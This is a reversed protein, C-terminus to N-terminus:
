RGKRKARAMDFDFDDDPDPIKENDEFTINEVLEAQRPPQKKNRDTKSPASYNQKASSLRQAINAFLARFRHRRGVIFGLSCLAVMGYVAIIMNHKTIYNQPCPLKVPPYYVGGECTNGVVKRYGSTGNYFGHCEEPAPHHSMRTKALVCTGNKSREYGIDCDWDEETCECNKYSYVRDLEEPNFCEANRKKRIYTVQHGMLCEESKLGGPRFTEYDSKEDDPKDPLRCTRPQLTSFDLGILVGKTAKATETLSTRGYIIFKQGTNSPETIIDTVVIPTDSIELQAWKIGENWSYYIQTSAKQDSAMVIISGHDGM